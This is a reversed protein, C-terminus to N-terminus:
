LRKIRINRFSSADQHDTLLIHGSEAEGYRSTYMEFKTGAVLARFEETGREYSLIKKGNLWHEVHKGQVVIRAKNWQGYPHLQKNKNPAYLLYAAGTETKPSIRGKVAEHNEDDIMQYEPGNWEVKGDKTHLPSVLYKVGSNSNKALKYEIELIFDGYVKKSMIDGAKQGPILRLEGKVAKWGHSPFAGGKVSTWHKSPNNGDFLSEWQGKSQSAVEVATPLGKDPAPSALLHIGLLIASITKM